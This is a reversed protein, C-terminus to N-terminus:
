SMGNNREIIQMAAILGDAYSSDGNYARGVVKLASNNFPDNKLTKLAQSRETNSSNNLKHDLFRFLFEMQEVNSGRKGDIWAFKSYDINAVYDRERFLNFCELSWVSGTMAQSYNSENVAKGAYDKADGFRANNMNAAEWAEAKLGQKLNDLMQIYNTIASTAVERISQLANPQADSDDFPLFSDKNAVALREETTMDSSDALISEPFLLWSKFKAVAREQQLTNPQADSDDFPLFSDKNAVALREETTMDSSDALISEPFLLWSKFKAVAREQQLTYIRYLALYPLVRFPIPNRLNDKHLGVIGNYPLKCDSYNNFRERQM